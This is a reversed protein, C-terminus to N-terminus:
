RYIKVNSNVKMIKCIAVSDVSRGGMPLPPQNMIRSAFYKCRDIDYFYIPAQQKGDYFVLLAFVLITM